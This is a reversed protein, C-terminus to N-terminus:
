NHTRPYEFGKNKGLAEQAYTSTQYIPVVVAGTAADPEQGAHIARTSFGAGEPLTSEGGMIRSGRHVAAHRLADPDWGRQRRGAGAGGPQPGGAAADRARDARRGLRDAPPRGDLRRGAQRA